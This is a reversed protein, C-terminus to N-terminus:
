KGKTAVRIKDVMEKAVPGGKQTWEAWVGQAADLMVKMDQPTAQTFAMGGKELRERFTKIDPDVRDWVRQAAEKGADRVVKQLDAPLGEIARRNGLLFWTAGGLGVEYCHKAVEHLKANFTASHTVWYADITGQQLAPYVEEWSLTVPSAGIARTFDTEVVGQARVKMGKLDALTKVPRRAYVNRPEVQAVALPVINREAHAREWYPLLSDVIQRRLGLDYPILGPLEIVENIRLEGATHAGWMEAFELLGDKVVTMIRAGGFGLSAAPYFTIKIRGKSRKEVEQAFWIEADAAMHGPNLLSQLKMQYQQAEAPGGVFALVAILLAVAIPVRLHMVDEEVIPTRGRPEKYCAPLLM